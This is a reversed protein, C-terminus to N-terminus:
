NPSKDLELNKKEFSNRADALLIKIEDKTKGSEELDQIIRACHINKLFDFLKFFSHLPSLSM